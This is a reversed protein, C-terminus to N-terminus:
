LLYCMLSPRLVRYCPLESRDKSRIQKDFPSKLLGQISILSDSLNLSSKMNSLTLADEKPLRSLIGLNMVVILM